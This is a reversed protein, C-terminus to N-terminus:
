FGRAFLQTLYWQGRTNRAVGIGSYIYNGLKNKRHGPSNIWGDVAAKAVDELGANMAVNEAAGDTFRFPFSPFRDNFGEHSFPASGNAMNESHGRGIDGLM